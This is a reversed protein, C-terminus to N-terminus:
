SESEGCVAEGALGIEASRAVSMTVGPTPVGGENGTARGRVLMWHISGDPKAVRYEANYVTGNQLSAILLESVRTRDSPHVVELLDHM